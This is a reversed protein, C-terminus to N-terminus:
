WQFREQDKLELEELERWNDIIDIKGAMARLQDTKLARIYETLALSVAKSKTREGTAKVVDGLLEEDIDLTTRM